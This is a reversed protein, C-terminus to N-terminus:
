AGLPRRLTMPRGCLRCGAPMSCGPLLEFDLRYDCQACFWSLAVPDRIPTSAKPLGMDRQCWATAPRIETKNVLVKRVLGLIQMLFWAM